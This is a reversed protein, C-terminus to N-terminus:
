PELTAPLPGAPEKIIFFPLAKALAVNRPVPPRSSQQGGADAGEAPPTAGNNIEDNRHQRYLSRM